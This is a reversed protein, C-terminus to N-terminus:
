REQAKMSLRDKEQLFTDFAEVAMKLEEEEKEVREEEEKMINELRRREEIKTNLSYQLLFM